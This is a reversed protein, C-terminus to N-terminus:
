SWRSDGEVKCELENYGTRKKWGVSKVDYDNDHLTQKSKDVHKDNEPRLLGEQM